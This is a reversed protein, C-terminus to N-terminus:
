DLAIRSSSEVSARQAVASPLSSAGFGLCGRKEGRGSGVEVDALSRQREPLHKWYRVPLCRKLLGPNLREKIAMSDYYSKWMRTFEDPPASKSIEAPNPVEVMTAYKGDYYVGYGRLSDIIAWRMGPFRGRFHGTLMDVINYKPEIESVYMGDPSKDFRVMGLMNGMERSVAQAIKLLPLMEESAPNKAYGPSETAFLKRLYALIRMEISKEESRFATQLLDFIDSGARNVIARALRRASDSNTEIQFPQMFLDANQPASTEYPRSPVMEGVDLHQRYIEFVASLFGEFTSDYHISLM